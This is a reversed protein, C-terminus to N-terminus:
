QVHLEVKAVTGGGAIDWGPARATIVVIYTSHYVHSDITDLRGADM